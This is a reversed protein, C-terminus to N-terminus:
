GIEIPNGSSVEGKVPDWTRFRAAEVAIHDDPGFNVPAVYVGLPVEFDKISEIAAGFTETSCDPGCQRLAEVIVSAEAWGAASFTSAAVDAERGYKTAVAMLEKNLSPFEVETPAYYTAGAGALKQLVELSAAGNFGVIPGAYGAASLATGATITDNAPALLIM